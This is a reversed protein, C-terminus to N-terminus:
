RVAEGDLEADCRMGDDPEVDPGGMKLKSLFYSLVKAAIIEFKQAIWKDHALRLAMVDKVPWVRTRERLRKLRMQLGAVSIDQGTELRFRSAVDKWPLNQEERLRLLLADGASPLDPERVGSGSSGPSPSSRPALAAQLKKRKKSPSGALPDDDDAAGAATLSISPEQSRGLGDEPRPAIPVYFIPPPGSLQSAPTM